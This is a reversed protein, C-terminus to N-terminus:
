HHSPATADRFQFSGPPEGPVVVRSDRGDLCQLRPRGPLFPVGFRRFFAEISSPLDTQIHPLLLQVYRLVHGNVSADSGIVLEQFNHALGTGLAM